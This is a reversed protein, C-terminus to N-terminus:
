RYTPLHYSYDLVDVINLTTLFGSPSVYEIEPDLDAPLRDVHFTLQSDGIEPRTSIDIKWCGLAALHAAMAQLLILTKNDVPSSSQSEVAAILWVMIGAHPMTWPNQATYIM